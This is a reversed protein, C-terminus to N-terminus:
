RSRIKALLRLLEIYLWILTVMLSFAAYWEYQRPAGSEVGHEIFDFDMVFTMAGIGVVFLSFGIGIIGNGHILPINYPTLLALFFSVMYIMFIAGIAASVGIQFNETPKILRARYIIIMMLMIGFSLGIATIAVGPYYSEFIASLPGLLMGELAAYIPGVWIANNIDTFRLFIAAGISGFLGLFMLASGLFPDVTFAQWSLFSSAVCIALLLLTKNAVGELTM